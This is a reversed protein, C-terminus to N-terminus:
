QQKLSKVCETCYDFDDKYIWGLKAVLKRATKPKKNRGHAGHEWNGCRDCFVDTTIVLSM